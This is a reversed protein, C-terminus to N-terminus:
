HTVNMAEIPFKNATVTFNLEGFYEVIESFPVDSIKFKKVPIRDTNIEKRAAIINGDVAYLTLINEKGLLLRFACPEFRKRDYDFVYQAFFDHLSRDEKLTLSIEGTLNGKKFHLEQKMIM